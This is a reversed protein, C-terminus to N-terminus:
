RVIYNMGGLNRVKGKMEMLVLASNVTPSDLGTTKISPYKLGSKKVSKIWVSTTQRGKNSLISHFLPLNVKGNYINNIAVKESVWM